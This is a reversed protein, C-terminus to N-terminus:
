HGLLLMRVGDIPTCAAMATASNMLMRELWAVSPGQHADTFTPPPV